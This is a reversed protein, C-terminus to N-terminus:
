LPRQESSSTKFYIIEIIFIEVKFLPNEKPTTKTKHELKKETDFVSELTPANSLKLKFSCKKM